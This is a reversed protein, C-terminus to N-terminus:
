LPLKSWRLSMPTFSLTVDDFSMAVPATFQRGDKADGFGLTIQIDDFDSSNFRFVVGYNRSSRAAISEFGSARLASAGIESREIENGGLLLSMRAYNWDASGGATEIIRIPTELAVAYAPDISPHLVLNGEGVATISASPVPPPPPPPSPTVPGEGGCASLLAVALAAWIQKKMM